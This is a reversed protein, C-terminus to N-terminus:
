QKVPVMVSIAGRLQGERYGEKVHGSVDKEGAPDGHCVLCGKSVQIPLMYRAMKAGNVVAEEFYSDKKGAEFKKLVGSEFGDPKNKDNRYKLSTQKVIIGSRQLKEGVRRGFVAPNFGKFGKGAENIQPQAEAIVEKAANHIKFIAKHLEESEKGTLSKVDIGAAALFKIQVQKEYADSTFGKDGKSADNILPQNDALVARASVLYDAIAVATMEEKEGAFAMGSVLVATILFTILKKM